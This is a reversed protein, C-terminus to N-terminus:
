ADPHIKKLEEIDALDQPRGALKKMVLLGSLSIFPVPVGRCIDLVEATAHAVDFAFPEHNFVDIPTRPHLDSHLRLLLM